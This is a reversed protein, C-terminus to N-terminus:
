PRPVIRLTYPIYLLVEGPGSRAWQVPMNLGEVEVAYNEGMRAAMANADEAIRDAIQSRYSDPGVISLTSSGWTDMQARGVEAVSEIYREIQAQAAEGTQAGGLRAKVRFTVRESDPRNDRELAIEEINKETLKTLIYDGYALEVGARDARRVADSLMARIERRRQEPDRTDGRIAVTQVLFDAPRRLGVAPMADSFDDQEIRSGTVIIEAGELDQATAPMALSLTLAAVLALRM